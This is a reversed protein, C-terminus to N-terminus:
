VVWIVQQLTLLIYLWNVVFYGFAAFFVLYMNGSAIVTAQKVILLYCKLTTSRVLVHKCDATGAWHLTFKEGCTLYKGLPHATSSQQDVWNECDGEVEGAHVTLVPYTTSYTPNHHFLCLIFRINGDHVQSFIKEDVSWIGARAVINM